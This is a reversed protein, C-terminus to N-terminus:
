DDLYIQIIDIHNASELVYKALFSYMESCLDYDSNLMNTQVKKYINILLDYLLISDTVFSILKIRCKAWQESKDHADNYKLNSGLQWIERLNIKSM